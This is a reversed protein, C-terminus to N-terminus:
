LLFTEKPYMQEMVLRAKSDWYVPGYFFYDDSPNKILYNKVLKFNQCFFSTFTWPLNLYSKGTLENKKRSLKFLFSELHVNM